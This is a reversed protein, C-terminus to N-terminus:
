PHPPPIQGRGVLAQIIKEAGSVFFRGNESSTAEPSPEGPPLVLVPLSQSAEGILDVVEGRPRPFAIRRVDVVDLLEPFSALVGEILACHNCFFRQGPYKEDEFNPALLFLVPKGFTADNLAFKWKECEFM